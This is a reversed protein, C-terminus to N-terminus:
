SLVDLIKAKIEAKGGKPLALIEGCKLCRVVSSAKDFIIQKNKCKKCQIRLFRSEPLEVVKM